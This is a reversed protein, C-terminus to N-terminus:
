DVMLLRCPTPDISVLLPRALNTFSVVAQGPALNPLQEWLSADIGGVARRLRNIVGPDSIKHLVWNNILGLVDDPLHQPLQTIFVLGLWRKRGRKAIRSVQQFLIPMKAVREASLFEHAEEILIMTPVPARDNELAQQYNLDQQRQVGKLMQAIVLNREVTSELDSLDIISVRGPQLLEACDLPPNDKIDFIDLRRLRHLKGYVARWSMDSDTSPSTTICRKFKDLHNGKFLSNFPSPTFDDSKNMVHALFGEVVDILLSLTMQPYGSDFEDLQMAQRQEEENRLKPFVSLERLLRKCAEYALFYRREQAESFDLIEKITYPSFESFSLGFTRRAPHNANATGHKVLHYLHTNGVGAPQINRSKLTRLMREDNTPEYIAAYEGETDLVITAVGAEQFQKILGSVTTSKGGGTTGLIGVHRPLVDKTCPITVVIEEQGDLLGLRIAGSLRLVRGTEEPNLMYVPSNPLPRRRHPMVVGDVEEGILQVHVRGHYKPVFLGGKVTATVIIPADARLGDPEAFPGEVVAGLYSRRDGKSHIRVLSQRPALEITERPLLVTVTGDKSTASDFMTWGVLGEGVDEPKWKGGARVAQEDISVMVEEPTEFVTGDFLELGLDQQTFDTRHAERDKNQM